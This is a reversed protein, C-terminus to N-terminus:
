LIVEKAQDIQFDEWDREAIEGVVEKCYNGAVNLWITFNKLEPENQLRLVDEILSVAKELRYIQRNTM